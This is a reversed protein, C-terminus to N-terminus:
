KYKLENKFEKMLIRGTLNQPLISNIVLLLRNVFLPIIVKHGRDVKNLTLKALRDSSIKVLKGMFGHTSIRASSTTNSEVGNPCVVSVRIDSDKLELAISKSFSIVFAKSASYVSKYPISFYGSLSGINLIRAPSCEKLMPIFYRTMMVLARINLLIRLDIYEPDSEGFPEAGAVGANNILYNVRYDERRCWEFVERPSEPKILDIGLFRVDVDFESMIKEATSALEPKPLAVLLLNMKRRACEFALSRGIGASGGTILTYYKQMITKGPLHLNLFM